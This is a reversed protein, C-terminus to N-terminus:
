KKGDENIIGTRMNKRSQGKGCRKKSQQRHHIVPFVIYDKEFQAFSISAWKEVNGEQVITNRFIMPAEILKIATICM